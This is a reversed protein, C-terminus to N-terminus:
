LVVSEGVLGRCQTTLQAAARRLHRIAGRVRRGNGHSDTAAALCLRGGNCQLYRERQHQVNREYEIIAHALERAQPANIGELRLLAAVPELLRGWPSRLLPQTLGHRLANVASRRKGEETGPGTSHLANRRNAMSRKESSM